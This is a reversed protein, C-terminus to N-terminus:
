SVRSRDPLAKRVRGIARAQPVRQEVKPAPRTVQKAVEIRSTEPLARLPRQLGM